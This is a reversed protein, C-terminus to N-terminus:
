DLPLPPSPFRTPASLRPSFCISKEERNLFVQLNGAASLDARGSGGRGPRSPMGQALRRRHRGCGGLPFNVLRLPPETGEGMTSGGQGARWGPSRCGTVRRGLVVCGGGLREQRGERRSSRRSCSVQPHRPRPPAPPLPLSAVAAPFCANKIRDAFFPLDQRRGTGQEQEGQRPVAPGYGVPKGSGGCVGPLADGWGAGRRAEASGVGAVQCCFGPRKSRKNPRRPFQPPRRLSFRPESQVPPIDSERWSWPESRVRTAALGLRLPDRCDRSGFGAAVPDIVGLLLSVPKNVQWRLGWSPPLSWGSGSVWCKGSSGQLSWRSQSIQCAFIDPATLAEVSLCASRYRIFCFLFISIILHFFIMLFLFLMLIKNWTEM